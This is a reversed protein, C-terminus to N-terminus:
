HDWHLGCTGCFFGTLFIARKRRFSLRLFSVPVVLRIVRPDPLELVRTEPLGKGEEGGIVTKILFKVRSPFSHNSARLFRDKFV